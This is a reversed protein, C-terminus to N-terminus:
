VPLFQAAKLNVDVAMDASCGMYKLLPSAIFYCIIPIIIMSLFVLRYLDAIVQAAKDYENAGILGSTRAVCSITFYINAAMCLYRVTSAFGVITVETETYAKSILLLDIADHIGIGVMYIVPGVSLQMLTRLPGHQEYRKQEASLTQSM